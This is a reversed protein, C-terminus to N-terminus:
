ATLAVLLALYTTSIALFLLMLPIGTQAFRGFSLSLGQRELLSAAVPGATAGTLTASSGACVGLSLAWWMVPDSSGAGGGLGSALIPILLATTPGANFVCTLLAAAWTLALVSLVPSRHGLGALRDALGDLSGTAAVAGVMVFLCLFFAMDELRMNAVVSRIHTAGVVLASAGAVGAVVPAPVGVWDCVLFGALMLALIAIGRQAMAPRYSRGGLVAPALRRVRRAKDGSGPALYWLLVALELAAIPALYILFGHFPLGTESAILMNPFDGIMTSAGGLNSAIVEGLVLAVPDLDLEEAVRLSVPIMVLITALNNVFMSLLYTAICLRVFVRRRDSRATAVIRTAVREFWGSAEVLATVAGVGAILVLTDLKGGVYRFADIPVYFRWAIGIAIAGVAGLAVITLRGLLNFALAGFTAVYLALMAIRAVTPSPPRATTQDPSVIAWLVVLILAAILLPPLWRPM